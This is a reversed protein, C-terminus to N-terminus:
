AIPVTVGNSTGVLAYENGLSDVYGCINACTTGSSFTYQSGLTVNVNQAISKISSFIILAILVKKFLSM